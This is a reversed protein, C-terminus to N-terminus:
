KNWLPGTYAVVEEPGPVDTDAYLLKQEQGTSDEIYKADSLAQQFATWQELCNFMVEVTVEDAEQGERHTRGLLQEWLGGNGPCSVVLNRNWAQLNRGESNAAISCVIPEEPNAEEIPQGYQNVGGRGYVLFGQKGVEDAFAVHETWVIGPAREMWDCVVGVVKLDLWVPVTNPTFSDRVARWKQLSEDDYHGADIARVVPLMSDLQRQNHQLIYRVDAYFAKRAELWEKPPRPDWKYYFGCALERCHRWVDVAEACSWGDPTEWYHRMHQFADQVNEPLGVRKGEIFLSAGLARVETAIVGPTETLRRRWARRVTGVSDKTLDRQEQANCLKVLAGPAMRQADVNKKVDLCDAWEVLETWTRPLPFLMEPLAWELLHAYDWLSRKTITGSMCVFTTEPHNKMWRAVRKTVAAQTSKLKHCEDAVILDPQLDRLKDSAQARGLLEYSVVTPKPFLWHISLERQEVETKNRLKAPILLIPRQAGVVRAALLSILTKGGGVRIPAFLGNFDHLDQLAAAQIQRLKMMGGPRQLWDTLLEVMDGQRGRWDRRPVDVVRALEATDRVGEKRFVRGLKSWPRVDDRERGVRAMMKDLVKGV